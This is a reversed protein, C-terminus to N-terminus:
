TLLSISVLVNNNQCSTNEKEYKPYSLNNFVQFEKNSNLKRVRDSSYLMLAFYEKGIYRTIKRTGGHIPNFCVFM